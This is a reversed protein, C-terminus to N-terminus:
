QFGFLSLQVQRVLIYLVTLFAQFSPFLVVGGGGGGLVASYAVAEWDEAQNYENYRPVFKNVKNMDNKNKLDATSTDFMCRTQIKDFKQNPFAAMQFATEKSTHIFFCASADM